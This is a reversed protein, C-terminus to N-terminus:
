QPRSRRRPAAAAPTRRRPAPSAGYAAAGHTWGAARPGSRVSNPLRRERRSPPPFLAAEPEPLSPPKDAIRRRAATGTLLWLRPGGDPLVAVAPFRVLVGAPILSRGAPIEEQLNRDDRGASAHFGNMKKDASTSKHLKNGAYRSKGRKGHFPIPRAGRNNEFEAPSCFVVQNEAIRQGFKEKKNQVTKCIM